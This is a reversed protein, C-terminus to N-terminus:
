PAFKFVGFLWYGTLGLSGLVVIWFLWSKLRRMRDERRFKNVLPQPAQRPTEPPTNDWSEFDSSM